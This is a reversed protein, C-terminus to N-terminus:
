FESEIALASVIQADIQKSKSQLAAFISREAIQDILRPVGRSAKHLAELGCHTFLAATRGAAALRHSVYSDAEERSFPMLQVRVIIRQALPEHIALRLASELQLQGSLLLAVEDRRDCDFNTFLRIEELFSTTLRHAEDIIIVPRVHKQRTLVLLREQLQRYLDAKRYAPQIGLALLIQRYIDIVGCTTHALYVAHYETQSLGELFASILVSKGCGVMELAMEIKTKFQCSAPIGCKRRLEEYAPSFWKEPIYLAADLVTWFRQQFYGILVGVQGM